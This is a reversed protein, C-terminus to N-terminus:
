QDVPRDRSVSEGVRILVLALVARLPMSGHALEGGAAVAKL